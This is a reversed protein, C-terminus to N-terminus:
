LAVEGRETPTKVFAVEIIQDGAREAEAIRAERVDAPDHSTVVCIRPTRTPAPMKAELARTRTVLSRISM